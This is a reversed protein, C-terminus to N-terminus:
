EVYKTQNCATTKLKVSAVVDSWYYYSNQWKKTRNLMWGSQFRWVPIDAKFAVEADGTTFSVVMIVDSFIAMSQWSEWNKPRINPWIKLKYIERQLHLKKWTSISNHRYSITVNCTAAFLSINNKRNEIHNFEIGSM